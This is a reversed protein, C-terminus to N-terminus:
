LNKMIVQAPSGFVTVNDPVNRLVRSGAGIVANSGINLGQLIFSQAGFLTQSGVTVHGSVESMPMFSCCRGTQVDHGIQAATNLFTFEGLRAGTSVFCFHGVVCGQGLAADQEVYADPAILVPFNLGPIKKLREATKAKNKPDAFGIVVDLPKERSFLDEGGLVPLGAVRTGAPLGDDIFGLINWRGLLRALCLIERGLGGAGYIALDNRTM